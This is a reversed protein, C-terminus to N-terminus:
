PTTKWAQTEEKIVSGSIEAYKTEEKGRKRGAM